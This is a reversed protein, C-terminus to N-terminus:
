AVTETATETHPLNKLLSRLESLSRRMPKGSTDVTADALAYLPQRENLIRRLEDMAQARGQIPRLDGQAVVRAMHEEPRAKLWVTYCSGRLSEYSQADTVFSGGTAIVARPQERLVRALASREFRRFGDQGYLAFIESLKAGAEREIERDLEIFPVNMSKALAAGLTSKGAGRLGVLAIRERRPSRDAQEQVLVTMPMAMAQALQRLLLISLNGQGAELQALYRESLGSRLALEKRTVQTSERWARVRAGLQALYAEDSRNAPKAAVAMM